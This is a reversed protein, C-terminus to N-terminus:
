LFPQIPAGPAVSPFLGPFFRVPKSFKKGTLDWLQAALMFAVMGM